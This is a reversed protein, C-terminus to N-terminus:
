KGISEMAKNIDEEMMKIKTREIGFSDGTQTYSPIFRIGNFICEDNRIKYTAGSPIIKKGCKRKYIYNIAKIAFDGMLMIVKVNRFQDLEKELLYSCNEITKSSVLYDKKVCKLATTLYVGNKLYDDYTRYKYGINNFLANTNKIFAPIDPGDFYDEDNRPISESIMIIKINDKKYKKSIQYKRIEVDLCENDCAFM